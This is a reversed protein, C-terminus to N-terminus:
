RAGAPRPFRHGLRLRLPASFAEWYTSLEALYAGSADFISLVGCEPCCSWLQEGPRLVSIVRLTGHGCARTFPETVADGGASNQRLCATLAPLYGQAGMSDSRPM